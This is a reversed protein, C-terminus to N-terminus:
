EEGPRTPAVEASVNGLSRLILLFMVKRSVHLNRM